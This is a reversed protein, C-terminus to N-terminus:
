LRSDEDHRETIGGERWAFILLRAPPTRMLMSGAAFLLDLELTNSLVCFLDSLSRCKCAVVVIIASDDLLQTTLFDDISGSCLEQVIMSSRFSRRRRAIIHYDAQQITGRGM